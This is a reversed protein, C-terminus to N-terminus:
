ICVHSSCCLIDFYIMLAAFAWYISNKCEYSWPGGERFRHLAPSSNPFNPQLSCVIGWLLLPNTFTGNRPHNKCGHGGVAQQSYRPHLEFPVNWQGQLSRKPLPGLSALRVSTWLKQFSLAEDVRVMLIRKLYPLRLKLTIFLFAWFWCKIQKTGWDDKNRKM